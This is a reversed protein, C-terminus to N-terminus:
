QENKKGGAERARIETKQLNEEPMRYDKPYEGAVRAVIPHIHVYGEPEMRIFSWIEMAELVTRVFEGEPMERYNKTFGAGFDAKVAKILREMDVLPVRLAEDEAPQWLHGSVSQRIKGACLLLIDSLVNNQPFAAGLECDEGMMFFASGKYIHVQCNFVSELDESLRRGYYKLYEFDEPAGDGRYMGPSLLLRKYVRHRRALGREEDMGFWDSEAFDEPKEYSMIDASFNRMFYRSAGTNEYLVEGGESDMFDDDSGDTVLLMGQAVAFRMVKILRRRHTYITWDAKTEDPLNGEIYETLQSLVFQSGPERDELFMLLVCLFAYEERSTFELIGMGPEAQAPIKELKVMLSNEILTCGLKETAFRRIDGSVDRVRYYLEKDQAKLIWRQRMLAELEERM